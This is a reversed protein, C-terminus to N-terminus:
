STFSGFSREIHLKGNNKRRKKKLIKQASKKTITNNQIQKVSM